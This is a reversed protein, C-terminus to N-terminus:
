YRDEEEYEPAKIKEPINVKPAKYPKPAEDDAWADQEEEDDYQDEYKKNDYRPPPEPTAYARKAYNNRTQPADSWNEEEEIDEEDYYISEPPPAVQRLPQRLPQRPAPEEWQDEDWEQAVPKARRIPEAKQLPVGTPLQNEPRITTPRLYEEDEEREWPAKGIGLREMVGVTLQVLREEAGEFVILRNPGSSVIEDIPLEYTSITEFGAIRDPIQPVGFSAIILSSVKGTENDFKFGRVRGLMEGTETIVECNILTNYIEVDVDDELVSDDDVLIVDGIQRVRSLLMLRPVNGISLISERLGLAVVERRDIDVWLQSVVGLRKGTDRTIVQTGLIDSRQSIQESTM